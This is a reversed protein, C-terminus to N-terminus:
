DREDNSHWYQDTEIVESLLSININEMTINHRQIKGYFVPKFCQGAIHDNSWHCIDRVM